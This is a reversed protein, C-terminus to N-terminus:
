VNGLAPETFNLFVFFQRTLSAFPPFEIGGGQTGLTCVQPQHLSGCVKTQM